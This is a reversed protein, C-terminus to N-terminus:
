LPKNSIAALPKHDSQVTVSRGYVYQDFKQLAFVVTLMEKEIQAYRTEPDTLAHSAFAIPQGNQMLAAVYKSPLVNVTTGCDIHFKIPKENILMQAYIERETVSNVTGTMEPKLTM